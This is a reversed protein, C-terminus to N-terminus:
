QNQVLHYSTIFFLLNPIQWHNQIGLFEWQKLQTTNKKKKKTRVLNTLILILDNAKM